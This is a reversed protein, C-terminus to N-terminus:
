TLPEHRAGLCIWPCRACVNNQGCLTSTGTCWFVGDIPSSFVHLSELGWLSNSAACYCCLVILFCSIGRPHSWGTACDVMMGIRELTM